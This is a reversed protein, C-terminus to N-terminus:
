FRQGGESRSSGWLWGGVIAAQATWYSPWVWWRTWPMPGSFLDLALLSDSLVYLCAGLAVWIGGRRCVQAWAAMGLLALAYCPVAVTFPAALRPAIAALLGAGALALLGLRVKAGAGVEEWSRREAFFLRAYLLHGLGFAGMALPLPATEILLDGTAHVALAAALPAGGTAWRRAALGALPLVAFLKLAVWGGAGLRAVLFYATTASAAVLVLLLDTRDTARSM